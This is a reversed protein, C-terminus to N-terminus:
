IEDNNKIKLYIYISFTLSACFLLSITLSLAAGYSGLYSLNLLLIINLLSCPAIIFPIIKEKDSAQLGSFLIFNFISGWIGVLLVIFTDQAILFEDGLFLSIIFSSYYKLILFIPIYMLSLILAIYISLNLTPQLERKLFYKRQVPLITQTFIGLSLIFISIIKYNASFYAIEDLNESKFRLILIPAYDYGMTFITAIFFSGGLSFYEKVSDKKNHFIQKIFSFMYISTLVMLVIYSIFLTDINIIKLYYIYTIILKLISYIIQIKFYLFIKNKARCLSCFFRERLVKFILIDSFVCFILLTHGEKIISYILFIVGTIFSFLIYYSINGIKKSNSEESIDVSIKNFYTAYGFLSVNAIIGFITINYFFTSSINIPTIKIFIFTTLM